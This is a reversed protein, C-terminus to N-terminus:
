RHQQLIKSILGKDIEEDTFTKKGMGLTAKRDQKHEVKKHLLKQTENSGM